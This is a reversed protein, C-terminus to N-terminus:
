IFLRSQFTRFASNMARVGADTISSTSESARGNSPCSPQPILRAAIKLKEPDANRLQQLNQANWGRGQLEEALTLEAKKQGDAEM